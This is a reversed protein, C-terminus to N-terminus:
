PQVAPRPSEQRACRMGNLSAICVRHRWRDWLAVPYRDGGDLAQYRTLHALGLLGAVVLALWPWQLRPTM